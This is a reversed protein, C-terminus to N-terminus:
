EKGLIVLRSSVSRNTDFTVRVIYIGAEVHETSFTLNPGETSPLQISRGHLDFFEVSKVVEQKNEMAFTINSRAPNPYLFFGEEHTLENTSLTSNADHELSFVGGLDGGVFLNYKGDNDMDNVWCSSYAEVEIGRFFDSKLQFTDAPELNGDIGEYYRIKGDFGGLFLRTTDNHRFFHPAAYGDPTLTAIDIEGLTPNVLTFAPNQLTGTNQYYMLEGTKKGLILDLKGDNDLDFLQPFCYSGASIVDGNSDTFNSVPAGFALPNGAGATNTRYVITGNELGLIMDQDGDNDLDGFAPVIRLGYGSNSMNLYNQDVFTLFPENVTGTNRFLNFASERSFTEKYRYFQSVLLDEKGDGNQDVFVPIAGTGVDIMDGQLFNKSKFAFNPLATTGNNKYYYVSKENQSAGKANAGVILDKAGDHDVDLFFAVPFLTMNIPTTNSPFNVDQSIMPSNTNPEEGGNILLVMNGYAVDGLVLDYVGSNDIDLALITSGAHRFEGEGLDEEERLPDSINGVGCPSVPNNLHVSNTNEDETFQGWCENKLEFILSDSHGYLEQSQNQHYEIRQGGIHFTLIDIDGDFDIDTYAPIDSSSVYLNTYSGLYDSYLLNSALEWALGTVATGINKYVKVGGIGYTFIDNKGDQNYDVLAVRNRLDNPFYSYANVVPKYKWTGSEQLKEFLRINDKSRDFVFLDMDGDFDFDIESFQVNNFGGAWPLKLTDVGYKVQIADSYDFNFQANLTFVPLLVLIVFIKM